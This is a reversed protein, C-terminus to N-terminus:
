KISQLHNKSTRLRHNEKLLQLFENALDILEQLDTSDNVIALRRTKIESQSM